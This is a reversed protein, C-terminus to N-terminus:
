VARGGVRWGVLCWGALVGERWAEVLRRALVSVEVLRAVGVKCVVRGSSVRRVSGCDLRRGRGDLRAPGDSPTERVAELLIARELLPRVVGDARLDTMHATLVGGCAEVGVCGDALTRRGILQLGGTLGAVTSGVLCEVADM